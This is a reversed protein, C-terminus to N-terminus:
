YDCVSGQRLSESSSMFFGYPLPFEKESEGIRWGHNSPWFFLPIGTVEPQGIDDAM